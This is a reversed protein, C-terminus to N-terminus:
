GPGGLDILASARGDVRSAVLWLAAPNIGPPLTVRVRGVPGRAGRGVQPGLPDGSAQGPIGTRRRLVLSVQTQPSLATGDTRRLAVGVRDRPRPRAPIARGALFGVWCTRERDARNRAADRLSARIVYLGPEVPEAGSGTGNWAWSVREGPKVPRAGLSRLATTRGPRRAELVVSARDLSSFALRCEGAGAAALTASTVDMEGPRPPTADITVKRSKDFVKEGKRAFVKIGYTGDELARGAADRGDWTTAFFGRPKPVADLLTAVTEGDKRISITIASTEHVRIGVTALDRRDDGNPSFLVTAQIRTVLGPPTPFAFPLLFVGLAVVFLALMATAVVVRRGRDRGPPQPDTM